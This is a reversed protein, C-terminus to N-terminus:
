RRIQDQLLDILGSLRVNESKIQVYKKKLVSYNSELKRGRKKLQSLLKTSEEQVAMQSRYYVKLKHHSTQLDDYDKKLKVLQEYRKETEEEVQKMREKLSQLQRECNLKQLKLIDQKEKEAVEIKEMCLRSEEELFHVTEELESNQSKLSKIVNEKEEIKQQLHFIEEEKEHSVRKFQFVTNELQFTLVRNENKLFTIENDKMIKDEDLSTKYNISKEHQLLEQEKRMEGRSVAVFGTVSFFRHFFVNM